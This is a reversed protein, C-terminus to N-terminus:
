VELATCSLCSNKAAVPKHSFFHLTGWDGTDTDRKPGGGGSLPIKKRKERSVLAVSYGAAKLESSGGTTEPVAPASGGM